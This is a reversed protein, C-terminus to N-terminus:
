SQWLIIIQKIFLLVNYIFYLTNLSNILIGINAWNWVYQYRGGSDISHVIQLYLAGKEATVDDSRGESGRISLLPM